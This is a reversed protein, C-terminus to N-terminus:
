LNNDSASVIAYVIVGALLSGAVGGGIAHGVRKSRVASTYSIAYQAADSPSWSDSRVPPLYVDSNGAVVGGVLWGVPGLLFGLAFGGGFYSGGSTDRGALEKAAVVPNQLTVNALQYRAPRAASPATPRPEWKFDEVRSAPRSTEPPSAPMPKQAGAPDVSMLRMQEGTQCWTEVDGNAGLKQICDLGEISLARPYGEEAAWAISPALLVGVLAAALARKMREM